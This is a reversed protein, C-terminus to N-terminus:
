GDTIHLWEMAVIEFRQGTPAMGLFPVGSFTGRDTLRVTVTDGEAVMEDIENHHDPFAARLQEWVARTTEIGGEALVGQLVAGPAFQDAAAAFDGENFAEVYRRVIAKNEEVSM